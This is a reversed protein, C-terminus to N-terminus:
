IGENQWGYGRHVVSMHDYVDGRKDSKFVGCQWCWHCSCSACTMHSCGGLHTTLIKCGPCPKADALLVITLMEETLSQKEALRRLQNKEECEECVFDKLEPVGETCHREMAFGVKWCQSCWAYYWDPRLRLEAGNRRSHGIIGCAQHNYQALVKYQPRRRCFPCLDHCPIFLQGPLNQRYWNTLCEHCCRNRCNGCALRLKEVAVEEFCLQCMEVFTSSAIKAQVNKLLSTQNLVFKGMIKMAPFAVDSRPPLFLTSRANVVAEYIKTGSFIIGAARKRFGLEIVAEPNEEMITQLSVTHATQSAAPVFSSAETAGGAECVPCLFAGADM